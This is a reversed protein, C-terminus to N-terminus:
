KTKTLFKNKLWCDMTKDDYTVKVKSIDGKSELIIGYRLEAGSGFDIVVKDDKKFKSRSM